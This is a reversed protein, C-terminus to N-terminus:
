QGGERYPARLRTPASSDIAGCVARDATPTGPHSFALATATDHQTPHPTGRPSSLDTCAEHMREEQAQRLRRVQHALALLIRVSLHAFSPPGAEVSAQPSALDTVARPVSRQQGTPLTIVLTQKSRRSISSPVLPFTHGYLPHTPDVITVQSVIRNRLPTNQHRQNGWLRM